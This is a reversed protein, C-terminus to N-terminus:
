KIYNKFRLLKYILVLPAQVFVLCYKIFLSLTLYRFNFHKFIIFYYSGLAWFKSLKNKKLYKLFFENNKKWDSIQSNRSENFGEFDNEALSIAHIGNLELTALDHHIDHNIDQQEDQKNHILNLNFDNPKLNSL